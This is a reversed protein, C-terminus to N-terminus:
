TRWPSWAPPERGGVPGADLGEAEKGGLAMEIGGIFAAPSTDVLSLLGFGRLKIPLRTFLEQFSKGQLNDVPLDLMCETGLGEQRRPVHKGIAPEYAAWLVTDLLQAVLLIDSSYCFSLHYDMKHTLSRHLALWLAQSDVSLISTVKEM